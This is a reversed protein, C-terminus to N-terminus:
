IAQRLHASHYLHMLQLQSVRLFISCPKVPLYKDIYFFVLMSFQLTSTMDSLSQRVGNDDSGSLNKLSDKGCNVAVAGPLLNM